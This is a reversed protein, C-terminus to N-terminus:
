LYFIQHDPCNTAASEYLKELLGTGHRALFYIGAIGREQLDKNPYLANSLYEAARSVDAHRRLEAAASRAALTELQHFMKSQANKAADVLTPDLKELSQTLGELTSQLDSKARDFQSSLGAPLVQKALLGRLHEVGPFVDALSLKFRGFKQAVHPEILTASIRPIIPTVNGLLTKYVVAAQAFYAIEAPGGIYTITPLLFDQVVPRMLVNASFEQPREEIAILLEDDSFKKDGVTFHDPSQHIAVRAGDQQRFLLTSSPTVKVQTHYGAEELRKNRQLLASTLEESREIAARYLPKAVTQLEPDSADLFIIGYEAFLRTFLRAFADGFTAGPVYFKKLLDTVDSEGLLAAAENVIASISDDFKIASVPTDPPFSSPVSLTKLEAQAMFTASSVEAVDHDQTALWFVPVAPIGRSSTEAAIKSISIAKLLSYLPGGFLSVQHGTVIARAGDRLRAINDLTKAGGGWNKNQKELIRAMSVSCAAPYNLSKASETITAPDFPPAPFFESVKDFHLLYDKFLNTAHPVATLPLCEARMLLVGPHSFYLEHSLAPRQIHLISTLQLFYSSQL